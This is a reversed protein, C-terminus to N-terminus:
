FSWIWSLQQAVTGGEFMLLVGLPFYIYIYITQNKEKRNFYQECLARWDIAHVRIPSKRVTFSLKNLWQSIFISSGKICRIREVMSSASTATHLHNEKFVMSSGYVRICIYPSIINTKNKKKEFKFRLPRRTIKELATTLSSRDGSNYHAPWIIAHECVPSCHPAGKIPYSFISISSFQICDVFVVVFIGVFNAMGTTANGEADPSKMEVAVSSNSSSSSSVIFSAAGKDIQCMRIRTHTLSIWLSRELGEM